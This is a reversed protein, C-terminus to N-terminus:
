RDRIKIEIWGYRDIYRDIDTDDIYKVRVGLGKVM